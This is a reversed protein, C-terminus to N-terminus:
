SVIPSETYRLFASPVNVLVLILGVFDGVGTHFSHSSELPLCAHHTVGPCFGQSDIALFSAVAFYPVVGATLFKLGQFMISVQNPPFFTSHSLNVTNSVGCSHNLARTAFILFTCAHFLLTYEGSIVNSWYILLYAGELSLM